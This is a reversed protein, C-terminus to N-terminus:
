KQFAKWGRGVTSPGHPCAGLGLFAGPARKMNALSRTRSHISHTFGRGLPTVSVTKRPVWRRARATVTGRVAQPPRARTRAQRSSGRQPLDERNHAPFGSPAPTTEATPPATRRM